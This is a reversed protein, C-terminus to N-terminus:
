SGTVRSGRRGSWRLLPREILAWCGVGVAVVAVLVVTKQGDLGIRGALDRRYAWGNIEWILYFHSLYISYSADGILMLPRPYRRPGGLDYAAGVVILLLYPVAFNRINHHQDLASQVSDFVGVAMCLVAAAALWWGSVRPQVRRIFLAGASGLFFELMSTSLWTPYSAMHTWGYWQAVIMGCWALAALVFPIWGVVFLLGFFVYLALEFPLTGSPPIQWPGNGVLLIGRVVADHGLAGDNVGHHTLLYAMTLALIAWYTPYIRTFRSWFFRGLRRIDGAYAGYGWVMVFGSLTFFFDVGSHGFRFLGAPTGPPLGPTWDPLQLYARGGGWWTLHYLVVLLAAIGRYVQLVDLQRPLRRAAPATM